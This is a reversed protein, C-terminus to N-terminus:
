LEVPDVDNFAVHLGELSAKHGKHEVAIYLTDADEVNGQGGTGIENMCKIKISQESHNLFFQILNSEADRIKENCGHAIEFLQWGEGYNRTQVSKTIGVKFHSFEDCKLWDEIKPLIESLKPDM